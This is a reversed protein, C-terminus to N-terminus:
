LDYLPEMSAYVSQNSLGAVGKMAVDLRNILDGLYANFKEEETSCEEDIEEETKLFAWEEIQADTTPRAPYQPQSGEGSGGANQSSAYLSRDSGAQASTSSHHSKPPPYSM